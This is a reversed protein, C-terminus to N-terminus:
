GRQDRDCYEGILVVLTDVDCDSFAWPLVPREDVEDDGEGDEEMKDGGVSEALSIATARQKGRARESLTPSGLTSSSM